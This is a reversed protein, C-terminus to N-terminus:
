GSLRHNGSCPHADPLAAAHWYRQHGKMSMWTLPAPLCQSLSQSMPGSMASLGSFYKMITGLMNPLPREEEGLLVDAGRSPGRKGSAHGRVDCHIASASRLDGGMLADTGQRDQPASCVEDSNAVAINLIITITRCILTSSLTLACCQRTVSFNPIVDRIATKPQLM